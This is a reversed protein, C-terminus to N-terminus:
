NNLTGQIMWCDFHEIISDNLKAQFYPMPTFGADHRIANLVIQANASINGHGVLNYGGAAGADHCGAVSCNLQIFPEVQTSFLITDPCQDVPPLATKDKKCSTTSALAVVIVVLTYLIGLKKM